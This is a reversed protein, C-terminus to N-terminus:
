GLFGSGPVRCEVSRDPRSETGVPQGSILRDVGADTFFAALTVPGIIPIRYEFNAVASADGGPSVLQYVPINQTVHRQVSRVGSSNLGKQMRQTGDNNLVNVTASTPVYVFPSIGWINFGRIDNEGGAHLLPQVPSGGQRWLRDAVKGLFHVGIVHKKNFPSTNPFVEADIVPEIQNVNGGLVSGAFQVSVSLSKGGTPTIPHNVSNYTFSPTISSTRIGGLSNAEPGNVHLFDIYDYYASAATTLTTVTQVTYGYSLGVRAFSRKLPHTGFVTFGKSNTTYNLLNQSGLQEYLPILNTGSLISAQQAQNFNFRQCSCPLAWRCRGTSSIRSPSSGWLQDRIRQM